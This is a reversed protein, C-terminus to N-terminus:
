LLARLQDFLKPNDKMVQTLGNAVQTVIEEENAREADYLQVRCIGHLIEHIITDVVESPTTNDRYEIVAETYRISGLLGEGTLGVNSQKLAYTKHGIKVKKVTIM